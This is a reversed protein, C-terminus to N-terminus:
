FHPGEWPTQIAPQPLSRLTRAILDADSPGYNENLRLCFTRDLAKCANEPIFSDALRPELWRWEWANFRYHPNVNVGAELLAQAVPRKDGNVFVPLFFPSDSASRPYPRVLPIEALQENLYHCWWRRKQITSFLRGLSAVGIACGIENAHHNLAPFLYHRPDQDSFDDEWRPKGRDAHALALRHLEGDQTYVVGGTGGTMHAKRYMTSFVGFDGFTGVPRGKVSAGHAQSCDEIVKVGYQRAEAVIAGVDEIPQGAAHVLILASVGDLRARVQELGVGYSDPATDMLKPHLGALIVASFTGPDTIPSVLVHSGEPIGLAKLAVFIANTGSNVADAFGGGMFRCFAETYRREFEGQYGPDEGRAAHWRLCEHIANHEDHGLAHRAPPTRGGTDLPM